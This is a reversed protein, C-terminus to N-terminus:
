AIHMCHFLTIKEFRINIRLHNFERNLKNISIAPFILVGPVHLLNCLSMRFTKHINRSQNLDQFTGWGRLCIAPSFFVNQLILNSISGISVM